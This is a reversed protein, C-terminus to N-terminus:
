DDSNARLQSRKCTVNEYDTSECLDPGFCIDNTYYSKKANGFPFGM